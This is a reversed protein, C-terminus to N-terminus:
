ESDPHTNVVSLAVKSQSLLDVDSGAEKTRNNAVWDLVRKGGSEQAPSSSFDYYNEKAAFGQYIQDGEKTSAPFNVNVVTNPKWYSLFNKLNGTIYRAVVDDDSAEHSSLAIGPVGMITGQRAGAVTGSYLLINRSSNFGINPGSLLVDFSTEFLGSLAHIVCDAPTGSCAFLGEERKVIKVQSHATLANSLGSQNKDPVVTTVEHFEGLARRLAHLSPSDIGDDNTLLIKM